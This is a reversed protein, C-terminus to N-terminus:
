ILDFLKESLPLDPFAKIKDAYEKACKKFEDDTPNLQMIEDYLIDIRAYQGFHKKHYYYFSVLYQMLDFRDPNEDKLIKIVATLSVYIDKKHIELEAENEYMVLVADCLPEYGQLTNYFTFITEKVYEKGKADNKKDENNYYFDVLHNMYDHRNTFYKRAIEAHTQADLATDYLLKPDNLDLVKKPIEKKRFLSFIGMAEGWGM